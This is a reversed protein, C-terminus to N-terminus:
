KGGTQAAEPTVTAEPSATPEPSPSPTVGPDLVTIRVEAGATGVIEETDPYLATFIAVGDYEGPDLHKDLKAYDIYYGPDILDTKYIEEQDIIENTKPDRIYRYLTVQMVYRNNLHNQINMRMTDDAYGAIHSEISIRFMGEEIINNLEAQIEEETMQEISGKLAAAERQGGTASKTEHAPKYVLFYYGAAGILLVAALILVLLLKIGRNGRATPEKGKQAM